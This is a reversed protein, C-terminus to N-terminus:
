IDGVYFSKGCGCSKSNPPDIFILHEELMSTEVDIECGELIEQSKSDIVFNVNQIKTVLDRNTNIPKDSFEILREYGFCGGGKVYIRVYFNDDLLAIKKEFIRTAKESIKLM